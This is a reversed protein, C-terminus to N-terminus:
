DISRYVWTNIHTYIYVEVSFIICSRARAKRPDKRSGQAPRARAKRPDKRPTSKEYLYLNGNPAYMCAYMYICTHMCGRMCRHVHARKRKYGCMCTCLYVRMRVYTYADACADSWAYRWIHMCIHVHFCMIARVDFKPNQSGQALRAFGQALRARAKRLPRWPWLTPGLATQAQPIRAKVQPM